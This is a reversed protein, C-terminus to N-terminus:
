LVHLIFHKTLWLVFLGMLLTVIYGYLPKHPFIYDELIREIAWSICIISLAILLSFLLQHHDGLTSLKRFLKVLM